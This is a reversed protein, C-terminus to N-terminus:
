HRTGPPRDPEQTTWHLQLLFPGWRESDKRGPHGVATEPHLDILKQFEAVGHKGNKEDLDIVVLASVQGTAIGIGDGAKFQDANLSAGKFGNRTRPRKQNDVPFVYWGRDTYEKAIARISSAPDSKDRAETM